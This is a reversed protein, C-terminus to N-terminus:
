LNLYSFDSVGNDTVIKIWFNSGNLFKDTFVTLNLTEDPDIYNPNIANNGFSTYNWYINETPISANLDRYPIWSDYTYNWSNDLLTINSLVDFKNPSKWPITGTNNILISFSLNNSALSYSNIRLTTKLRDNTRENKEDEATEILSESYNYVNILSSSIVLFAIFLIGFSIAQGSGM